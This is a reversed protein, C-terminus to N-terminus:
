GQAAQESLLRNAAQVPVPREFYFGQAYDCSLARLAELQGVTEVGEAIAQLGVQHSLAIISRALSIQSDAGAELLQVFTRDIKLGDLPFMGLHSLSSYGTGFDDITVQVSLARLRELMHRAARADEMLTSETVELKLHRAAVGADALADRISEVLDIQQFQRASLNVSVWLEREGGYVDLMGRLDAVARQLVWLGLPVILGSDEALPIFDGPGLLGRRPHLWRVLAEFGAIKGTSIRIIPQYHVVFEERDLARHLDNELEFAQLAALHMARHFVVHQARGLAKARYMANDADRLVEASSVYQGEDVAIGVSVTVFLDKGRLGIPASLQAHIREAVRAADRTDQLEDLLITFEDGGFRAVTDQMRVCRQLRRGIEVLVEDGFVHGLSDNVVQFRDVDLFLVGFRGGGPQRARGIRQELRDLLEARSALGTLADIRDPQSARARAEKRTDVDDISGAMRYVTGDPLRGAAGRIQFWRYQGGRHLLRAEVEFFPAEGQRYAEAAGMVRSQDDPHLLEYFRAPDAPFPEDTYGLMQSLRPSVTLQHTIDNYEWLGSTANASALAFGDASGSPQGAASRWANDRLFAVTAQAGDWSVRSVWTEVFIPAGDARQLWEPTFPLDGRGQETRALRAHVRPRADPRVFDLVSRGEVVSDPTLGLLRRGAPNLYLIARDRFVCIADPNQEVLARFGQPAPTRPESSAPAGLAVVHTLGGDPDTLVRTTWTSIPSGRDRTRWRMELQEPVAEAPLQEFVRQMWNAQTPDLLAEWLPRGVIEAASWGTARECAGNFLVVRGRADLLMLRQDLTDLVAALAAPPVQALADLVAGRGSAQTDARAM